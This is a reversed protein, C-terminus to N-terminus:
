KANKYTEINEKTVITVGTDIVSEPKKGEKIEKLLKVGLYGVLPSVLTFRLPKAADEQKTEEQKTETQSKEPESAAKAPEAKQTGCGAFVSALMLVALILSLLKKM